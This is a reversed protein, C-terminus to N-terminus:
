SGGPVGSSPPKSEAMQLIRPLEVGAIFHSALFQPSVLLIAARAETLEKDIAAAWATGPQIKTDDWLHIGEGRLYPTLQVKLKELWERDHHSYSIFVHKRLRIEAM